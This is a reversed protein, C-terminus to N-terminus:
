TDDPTMVRQEGVDWDFVLGTAREVAFWGMNTSCIGDCVRDSHVALIYYGPPSDAEAIVDCSSLRDQAEPYRSVIHATAAACAADGTAIVAPPTIEAPQLFTTLLLLAALNLM